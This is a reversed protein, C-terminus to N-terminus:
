DDILAGNELMQLIVPDGESLHGTVYKLYDRLLAIDDVELRLVCKHGTYSGLEMTMELWAVSPVDYECTEAECFEFEVDSDFCDGHYKELTGHLFDDCAKALDEIQWYGWMGGVDYNMFQSMVNVHMHCAENTREYEDETLCGDVWLTVELNGLDLYLKM